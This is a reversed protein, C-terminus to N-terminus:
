KERSENQAVVHGFWRSLKYFAFAGAPYGLALTVIRRFSWEDGEITAYLLVAWLIVTMGFLLQFLLKYHKAHSAPPHNM